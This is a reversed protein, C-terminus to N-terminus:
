PTERVWDAIRIAVDDLLISLWECFHGLLALGASALEVILAPIVAAFFRPKKWYDRLM